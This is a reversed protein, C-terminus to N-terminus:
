WCSPPKASSMRTGALTRATSPTLRMGSAHREGLRGHGLRQATDDVALLQCPDAVALRHHDDARPRDAAQVDPQGPGAARGPHEQELQAPPAQRQGGAQDRGVLGDRGVGGVGDLRDAGEGPPAPGVDDDDGGAGALGLLVGQAHGGAPARDAEEAAQGLVARGDGAVGVDDVVPLDYRSTPMTPALPELGSWLRWARCRIAEPATGTASRIVWRRGRSRVTSPMWVTVPPSAM